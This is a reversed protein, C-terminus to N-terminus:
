KTKKPRKPKAPKPRKAAKTGGGGMMFGGGAILLAVVTFGAMVYWIVHVGYPGEIQQLPGLIAPVVNKFGAIAVVVTYIIALLPLFLMIGLANSVADPAPEVLAPAMLPIEPAAEEGPAFEEALMPEAEEEVDVAPGETTEQESEATYIEDLIGGLSTDDAQLSLDLLGSGSGFTDLNVDEEIEELSAEEATGKADTMTDEALLDVESDTDGLVNVGEAAAVTDAKLLEEGVAADRSTDGALSIEDASAQEEPPPPPVQPPASPERSPASLKRPLAIGKDAMLADVEDVKFLVRPGDIFERLKGRKVLESLQEETVNLKQAAEQSSYFMGAM